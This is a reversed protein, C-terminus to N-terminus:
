RLYEPKTVTYMYVFWYGDDTRQDTIGADIVRNSVNMADFTMSEVTESVRRDIEEIGSPIKLSYDAVRGSFDILLQFYLRWDYQTGFAAETPFEFPILTEIPELRLDVLTDGSPRRYLAIMPDNYGATDGSAGAAAIATAGSDTDGIDALQNDVLTPVARRARQGIRELAHDAFDTGPFSDAFEQYAYYVSSDGPSFYTEGLWLLAFKSSVFYKSEPFNDVVYQYLQRASDAEDALILMDEARDVYIKAYGTDAATGSLHLAELAEPVFDSHPYERLARKLLSDAAKEDGTQDRTMQALAIMAKPAYYSTSFSDVLYQMAGIASDPKNLNFWYLEGLLYQTYAAEDIATATATSDLQTHAFDKLKGIDSSRKIADSRVPSMRDAEAALDYYEKARKLDDYDIQYILGLRYRAESVLKPQEVTAVVEEYMAEASALDDDFEYGEGMALKLVGLSDFYLEDNVLQSLYDLGDDVRQLQFSCRASRYLCHYKQDKDPEMGLVQLYSGLADRFQYVEFYGDAISLQAERAAVADGLSDRVATFYRRAQEFEREAQHYNGLAQAAEAKFQRDYGAEFIDTFRAMADDMEGLHLKAKALYLTAEKAHKSDPYNALLERFRRESRGYQETFFYSVGLIYVADDYYKSNPHNEVVKLAKEIARQYDRAGAGPRNSEKRSKEAENFAKNANFFLNFYVGCSALLMVAMGAALLSRLTLGTMQKM